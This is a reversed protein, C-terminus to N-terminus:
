TRLRPAEGLVLACRPNKSYFVEEIAFHTPSYEEIVNGLDLFIQRLKDFRSANKPLKIVGSAVYSFENGQGAIVGYGTFASGPDVGLIRFM